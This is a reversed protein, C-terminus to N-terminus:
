ANGGAKERIADRMRKRLAQKSTEGKFYAKSTEGVAYAIAACAAAEMAVAGVYGIGTSTLIASIMQWGVYFGAFTLGAASIFQRILKWAEEKSLKVGYCLGIGVVGSGMAAALTPLSIVVPVVAGGTAAAIMTAIVADAKKDASSLDKDASSM